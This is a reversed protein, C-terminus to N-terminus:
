ASDTRDTTAFEFELTSHTIDFHEALRKKLAQKIAEMRAIDRTAIIVHAELSRQREDIEWIHMDHLDVV